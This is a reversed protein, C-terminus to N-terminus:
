KFFTVGSSYVNAFFNNSKDFIMGGAYLLSYHYVNFFSNVKATLNILKNIPLYNGNM